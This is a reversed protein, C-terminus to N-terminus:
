RDSRGERVYQRYEEPLYWALFSYGDPLHGGQDTALYRKPEGAMFLAPSWLQVTVADATYEPLGEGGGRVQRDGPYFETDGRRGNSGQSIRAIRFTSDNVRREFPRAAPRMRILVVEQRPDAEAAKAVLDRLVSYDVLQGAAYRYQRLFADLEEMRITRWVHQQSASAPAPTRCPSWDQTTTLLERVLETNVMAQELDDLDGPSPVLDQFLWEELRVTRFWRCTQRCLALAPDLWFRRSWDRISGGGALHRSLSEWLAEEHEAFEAYYDDHVDRPLFVRCYDFYDARYGFFRGRQMLVDVQGGGPGRPMWTVTLGRIAFGRQLVNGGVFIWARNERWNIPRVLQRDSNIQVVEPASAFLYDLDDALERVDHVPTAVTQKLDDLVPQLRRWLAEAGIGHPHDIAREVEDELGALLNHMWQRALQHSARSVEPHVLMSRVEGAGGEHDELAAGVIFLDLARRLSDPPSPSLAQVAAADGVPIERWRPPDTGFFDEAGRYGEGPRLLTVVDPSLQDTLEILLNAQPTATYQVFLNNPFLGRLRQLAVYTPTPRATRGLRHANASNDLSAEDAEDDVILIPLERLQESFQSGELQDCLRDIGQSEAAGGRTRKLITIVLTRDRRAVQRLSQDLVREDTEPTVDLARLGGAQALKEVVEAHTQDRLLNKTGTLIVIVRYGNDSALACLALFSSTKGSQIKGIVLGTTPGAGPPSCQGLFGPTFERLYNRAAEPLGSGALYDSFVRGSADPAWRWQDEHVWDPRADPVLFEGTM